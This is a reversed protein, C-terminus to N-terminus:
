LVFMVISSFGKWFRLPKKIELTRLNRNLM